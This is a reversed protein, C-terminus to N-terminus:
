TYEHYDEKESKGLHCTMTYNTLLVGERCLTNKKLVTFGNREFFAKATISADVMVQDSKKSYRELLTRLLLNGIGQNILDKRVFLCDIGQDSLNGFGALRNDSEVALVTQTTELKNAWGQYNPNKQAWKSLQEPTYDKANVTEITENFLAVVEYLYRESYDILKITKDM